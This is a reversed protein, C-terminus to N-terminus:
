ELEVPGVPGHEQQGRDAVVATPQSLLPHLFTAKDVLAPLARVLELSVM